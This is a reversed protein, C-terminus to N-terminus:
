PPTVTGPATPYGKPRRRLLLLALFAVILVGAAGAAIPVIPLPSVPQPATTASAVTVTTPTSHSTGGGTAKVTVNYTGPQGSCTLTVSGSGYVSNSSLTCMLGSPSSTVELNTYSSYGNQATITIETNGSSGTQFSIGGASAITFDPASAINVAITVTHLIFSGNGQLAVTFSGPSGQCSLSSSDSAGAVLSNQSLSCRLSSSSPTEKLSVTASFGYLRTLTISTTGTASGTISVTDPNLNLSYDPLNSNLWINNDVMGIDFSVQSNGAAGTTSYFFSVEVFIGSAQDFAFGFKTTISSPGYVFTSSYNLFNVMRSMGLLTESKTENLTPSTTAYTPNWIPDSKQLGTSLVFYDGSGMGPGTANITGTSVDVLLGEHSSTGNKYVSLLSLTVSTGAVGVVQLLGYDSNALSGPTFTECVTPDQSTCSDFLVQYKSWDGQKVGPTYTVAHVSLIPSLMIALVLMTFLATVIVSKSM